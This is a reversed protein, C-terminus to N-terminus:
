AGLFGEVRASLERLNVPKTMYVDCGVDLAKRIDDTSTNGTIAIIPVYTLAAKACARLRRIVELGNIDPLNMDVLILDPCHRKAYEIGELGNGSWLFAYGQAKLLKQVINMNDLDDEIYLVQKSM